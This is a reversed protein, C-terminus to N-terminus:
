NELSMITQYRVVFQVVNKFNNVITTKKNTNLQNISNSLTKQTFVNREVM